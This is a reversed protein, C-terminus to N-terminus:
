HIEVVGIGVNGPVDPDSYDLDVFTQCRYHLMLQSWLKNIQITWALDGERECIDHFQLIGGPQVLPAYNEYDWKVSEYRHDADIHMHDVRCGTIETVADLADFTSREIMYVDFNQSLDHLIRRRHTLPKPNANDVLVIKGGPRLFVSFLYASAGFASGLEVFCSNNTRGSDAMYKFFGNLESVVQLLPIKYKKLFELRSRLVDNDADAPNYADGRV